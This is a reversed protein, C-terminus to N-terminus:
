GVPRAFDEGSVSDIFAAFEILLQGFEREEDLLPAEIDLPVDHLTFLLLALAASVPTSKSGSSTDASAIAVVQGDGFGQIEL